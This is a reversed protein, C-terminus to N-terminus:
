GEMSHPARRVSAKLHRSVTLTSRELPFLVTPTPRSPSAARPPGTSLTRTIPSFSSILSRRTVASRSLSTTSEPLPLTTFYKKGPYGSGAQTNVSSALVQTNDSNLLCLDYDNASTGWADNWKLGVYIQTGATATITNTEDIGSFENWGNGNTDVFNGQWHRQAENGISQAWVIGAARAKNVIDCMTGTGDGPGGISSGVSCTIVNVGQSILWDVANGMEAVTSFNALYLDANPAVDYIIEACATGHVSSGEGAISPAWWHYAAPLEGESQRLIYDKFGLDLIGVKIGTGIYGATHWQDASIAAVGESVVSPMFVEPLHVFRVDPLDSLTTLASVPISVQLLGAYSTEINAGLATASTSVGALKDPACEIIVRVRDGNLEIGNEKTYEQPKLGTGDAVLGSLRSDLKPLGKKVTDVAPLQQIQGNSAAVPGSLVLPSLLISASTFVAVLTRYFKNM